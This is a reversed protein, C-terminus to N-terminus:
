KFHVTRPKGFEFDQFGFDSTHFANTRFLNSGQGPIEPYFAFSFQFTNFVLYDNSIILGAGISSFVKSNTIQRNEDGIMAMTYNLYPNLRFGYLNWPSYFQTQLTLLFKQTGYVSSNFGQIGMSNLEDDNSGYIGLVNANENITVRDGFSNLRNTGWVVQPKVFQRVKWVSGIDLLNTFYNAQFSYTTQEIQDRKFFSGFELNTSLFGWSFYNGYAVKAGLYLREQDNKRQYGGTLGYVTGVPVDEVFGFNFIYQDKVYQRSAIGISGLYFTESSFFGTKDFEELPKEKYDVNLMRASTILNTTRDDESIGKFIRFSHGGWFDYTNYKHSILNFQSAEDPFLDKRFQQDVYAGGAWRAFPSYFNREINVGKYYSLDIDRRYAVSTRTFTNKFNPIIYRVDFANDGENFQRTYRFRLEHGTGIFNRERLGISTRTTSFSAEPILSWSDLVRVTVDVSDSKSKAEPFEATILASRIYSQTRILRESEKLLLTDLPANKKILLLDRIAGPNTSKHIKNGTAEVWNRPQSITDFVSYGFPDLSEIIINRIIKGEFKRYNRYERGRITSKKNNSTPKFVLNHLMKTFKRKESFEKIQQYIKITDTETEKEQSFSTFCTFLFFISLFLYKKFKMLM